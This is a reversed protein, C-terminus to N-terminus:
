KTDHYYDGRDHDQELSPSMVGTDQQERSLQNSEIHTQDCPYQHSLQNTKTEEGM